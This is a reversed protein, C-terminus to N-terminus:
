LVRLNQVADIVGPLYDGQNPALVIDDSLTVWFYSFVLGADEGPGTVHHEWSDPLDNPAKLLFVHQFRLTNPTPFHNEFTGLSQIMKCNSLGSEEQIERHLAKEVPEHEEVTGAPIQTGAEPFDRHNFVLLKLGQQPHERIIFALVKHNAINASSNKM